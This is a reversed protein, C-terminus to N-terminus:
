NSNKSSQIFMYILSIEIFIFSSVILWGYLKVSEMDSLKTGLIFHGVINIVVTIFIAEFLTIRNSRKM